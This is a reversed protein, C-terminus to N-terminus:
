VLPHRRIGGVKPGGMRALLRTSISLVDQWAQHAREIDAELPVTAVGDAYTPPPGTGALAEALERVGRRVLLPKAESDFSLGHLVRLAAEIVRPAQGEKEACRVIEDIAGAAAIQRASTRSLKDLIQLAAHVPEGIHDRIVLAVAEVGKLECFERHLAVRDRDAVIALLDRCIHACHPGDRANIALASLASGLTAEGPAATDSLVLTAGDGLRTLTAKPLSTTERRVSSDPLGTGLLKKRRLQDAAWVVDTETDHSYNM